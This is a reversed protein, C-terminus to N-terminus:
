LRKLKSFDPIKLRFYGKGLSEVDFGDGLNKLTKRLQSNITYFKDVNTEKAGWVTTLLDVVHMQYNEAELLAKIIDNYKPPLKIMRRGKYICKDMPAYVVGEGLLYCGKPYAKVPPFKWFMLIIWGIFMLSWLLSYIRFSLINGISLKIFGNLRIENTVGAYYLPLPTFSVALSDRLVSIDSDAYGVISFTELDMGNLSLCKRWIDNLSDSNIRINLTAMASQIIREYLLTDVNYNNELESLIYSDEKGKSSQVTLSTYKDKKKGSFYSIMKASKKRREDLEQHVAEVFTREAVELMQKRTNSYSLCTLTALLCGIGIHIILNKRNM